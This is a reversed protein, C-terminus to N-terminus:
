GGAMVCPAAPSLWGEAPPWGFLPAEWGVAAKLHSILRALWRADEGARHRTFNEREILSLAQRVHQQSAGLRDVLMEIHDIRFSPSIGAASWLMDLWAADLHSDAFVQCGRAAEALEAVVVDVPVGRAHLTTRALGHLGEAEETWDWDSWAPVPRILWSRCAGGEHAIAVEIPFSRGHCPLCSAEFDITAIRM